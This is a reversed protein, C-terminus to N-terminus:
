SAKEPRRKKLADPLQEYFSPNERSLRELEYEDPYRAFSCGRFGHPQLLGILTAKNALAAKMIRDNPPLSFLLFRGHDMARLLFMPRIWLNWEDIPLENKLRNKTRIWLAILAAFSHQKPEEVQEVEVEEKRITGIEGTVTAPSGSQIAPRKSEIAPSGSQTAPTGLKVFEFVSKLSRNGKVRVKLEGIEQLFNLARRVTRESLESSVMIEEEYLEARGTRSDHHHAIVGAVHKVAPRGDLRLKDVYGTAQYSV